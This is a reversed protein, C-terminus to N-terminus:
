VVKTLARPQLSLPSRRCGSSRLGSASPRHGVCGALTRLCTGSRSCRRQRTQLSTARLCIRITRSGVAVLSSSIFPCAHSKSRHFHQSSIPQEQANSSDSSYWFTSMEGFDTSVFPYIPSPNWYANRVATMAMIGMNHDFRNRLETGDEVFFGSGYTLFAVNNSVEAELTGHLTLWRAFTRWISSSVVRLERSYGLEKAGPALYDKFSKAYGALHFHIGYQGMSGFNGPTGMRTVEVGDLSVSSGYRFKQQGGWLANCGHMGATGFMWHGTPSPEPQEGGTFVTDDFGGDSRPRVFPGQRKTTDYCKNYVETESDQWGGGPQVAGKTSVQSFNPVLSRTAGNIPTRATSPLNNCGGGGPLLESSVTIRRSLWGVHLRTQVRLRRGKENVLETDTSVHDFQLSRQLRIFGSQDISEITAVEVGVEGDDHGGMLHKFRSNANANAAASQSGAEHDMWVRPMGVGQKEDTYRSTKTTLLIQDGKRWGHLLAASTVDAVELQLERAGRRAGPSALRAWTMPYASPWTYTDEDHVSEAPESAHHADPTVWSRAEAPPMTTLPQIETRWDKITHGSSDVEVAGWTDTYPVASPVFGNLQYNGNFFVSVGKSVGWNDLSYGAFDAFQSSPGQLTVGPYSVEASYQSATVPTNGFDEAINVLTILLRSAFRYANDHHSGAQLLGGSEVIIFGVRLEMDDADDFLIIGGKRVVIGMLEMPADLSFSQRGLSLPKPGQAALGLNEVVLVSRKLQAAAQSSLDIRHSTAKVYEAWSGGRLVGWSAAEMHFPHGAAFTLPWLNLGDRPFASSVQGLGYRKVVTGDVVYNGALDLGDGPQGGKGMSQASFFENLVDASDQSYTANRHESQWKSVLYYQESSVM